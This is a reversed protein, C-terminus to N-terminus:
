GGVSSSFTKQTHTNLYNLQNFTLKSIINVIELYQCLLIPFHSSYCLSLFIYILIKLKTNHMSLHKILNNKM